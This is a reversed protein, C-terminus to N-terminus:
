VTIEEVLEIVTMWCGRLLPLMAGGLRGVAMGESKNWGLASAPHIFHTSRAVDRPHPSLDTPRDLYKQIHLHM